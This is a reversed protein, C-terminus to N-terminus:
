KERSFKEYLSEILTSETEKGTFVGFMNGFFIRPEEFEVGRKKFVDNNRTLLLLIFGIVIALCLLCVTIVEMSVSWLQRKCACFDFRFQFNNKAEVRQKTTFNGSITGTHM